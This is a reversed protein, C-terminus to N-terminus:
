AEQKGEALAVVISIEVVVVVAAPEEVVLEEVLEEALVLPVGDQM